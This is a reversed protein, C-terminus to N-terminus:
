LTAVPPSLGKYNFLLVIVWLLLTHPNKYYNNNRYSNSKYRSLDIM